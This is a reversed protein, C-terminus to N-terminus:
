SSILKGQKHAQEMQTQRSIINSSLGIDKLLRQMGIWEM